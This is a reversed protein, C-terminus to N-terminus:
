RTQCTDDKILNQRVPESWGKTGNWKVRYINGDVGLFVFSGFQSTRNDLLLAHYQKMVKNPM